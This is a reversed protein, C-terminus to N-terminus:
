YSCRSLILFGIVIIVLTIIKTLCGGKVLSSPDGVLSRNVSDALNSMLNRKWEKEQLKEGEDKV